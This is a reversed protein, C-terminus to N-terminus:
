KIGKKVCGRPCPKQTSKQWDGDEFEIVEGTDLCDPCEPAQVEISHKGPDFSRKGNGNGNSPKEPIGSVYWDTVWAYNIPKFGRKLWEKFCTNLRDTDPTSTVVAELDDWIKKPPYRDCIQRIVEIGLPTKPASRKVTARKEEETDTNQRRYQALPPKSNVPLSNVDGEKEKARYGKMYKRMYARRDNEDRIARYDNHNPVRYLFTSEQLLRRGDHLTSRSQPDPSMLYDLAGRVDDVSCGIMAALIPPNMEVLGDPRTNAIIYGWVAFVHAGAGVMSGTFTSAFFKGYM